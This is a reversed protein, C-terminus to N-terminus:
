GGPQSFIVDCVIGARVPDEIQVRLAPTSLALRRHCTLLIEDGDRKVDKLTLIPEGDRTCLTVTLRDNAVGPVPLHMVLVDTEPALATMVEECDRGEIHQLRAGRRELAQLSTRTQIPHHALRRMEPLAGIVNRLAGLRRTCRHCVYLHEAVPEATDPAVEELLWSLLLEDGPHQNLQEFPWSLSSPTMM